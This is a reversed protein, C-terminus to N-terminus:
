NLAAFVLLGAVLVASGYFMLYITFMVCKENVVM